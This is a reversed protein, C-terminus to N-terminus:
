IKKVKSRKYFKRRDDNGMLLTRQKKRYRSRIAEQLAVHASRPRMFVWYQPLPSIACPSLWAVNDAVVSEWDAMSSSATMGTELGTLAEGRSRSVRRSKRM